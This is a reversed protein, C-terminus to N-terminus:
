DGAIVMFLFMFFVVGAIILSFTIDGLIGYGFPNIGFTVIFSAVPVSILMTYEVLGFKSKDIRIKIV